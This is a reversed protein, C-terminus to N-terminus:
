QTWWRIIGIKIGTEDELLAANKPDFARLKRMRKECRDMDGLKFHVRALEM